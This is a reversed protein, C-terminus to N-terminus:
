PRCSMTSVLLLDIHLRVTLLLPSSANHHM